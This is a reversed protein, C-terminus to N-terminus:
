VGFWEVFKWMLLGDIGVEDFLEFVVCLVMDCMLWVGIDKMEIVLLIVSKFGDRIVMRVVIRSLVILMLIMIGIRGFSSCESVLVFLM